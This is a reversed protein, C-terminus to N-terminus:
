TPIIGGEIKLLNRLELAKPDRGTAKPNYRDMDWRPPNNEIYECIAHFSKESRIIHEFYNRQWVRASPMCRRQNIQKTSQYKFYAIIQGLTPRQLPATEAGSPTEVSTPRPSGAGVNSQPPLPATEAGSPTEVSTPRPSGVGVNSQSQLPATEAGSAAEESAPLPSGAGVDPETIMIIGHIHNPMLVFTDLIINPFHTPVLGWCDIVINGLHNPISKGEIVSGFLLKKNHSCITVFYAGAQAYDFDKLRISRRRPLRKFGM